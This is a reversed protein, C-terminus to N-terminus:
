EPLSVQGGGGSHHWKKNLNSISLRERRCVNIM